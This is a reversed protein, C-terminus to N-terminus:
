LETMFFHLGPGAAPKPGDPNDPDDEHAEKALRYYEQELEEDYLGWDFAEFKEILSEM